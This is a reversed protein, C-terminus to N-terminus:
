KFVVIKKTFLYDGCAVHLMYVGSPLNSVNVKEMNIGAPKSTNDIMGVIAGQLNRLEARFTGAEDMMYEINLLDRAPNPYVSIMGDSATGGIDAIKLRADNIVVGEGNALESLPNGNLTFRIMGSNSNKVQGHIVLVTEGMAVNVYSLSAWGIQVVNNEAIFYPAEDGQKPMSVGTIEFQSADYDLYLTIAGLEMDM